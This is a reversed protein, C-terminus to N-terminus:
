TENKTCNQHTLHNVVKKKISPATSQAVHVPVVGHTSNRKLLDEILEVKTLIKDLKSEIDM